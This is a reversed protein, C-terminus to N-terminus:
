YSYKPDQVVDMSSFSIRGTGEEGIASADVLAGLVESARAQPSWFGRISGGPTEWMMQGGEQPDWMRQNERRPAGCGRISAGPSEVDESVGEWM